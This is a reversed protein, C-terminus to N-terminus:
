MYPPINNQLSHSTTPLDHPIILPHTYTYCHIYNTSRLLFHVDVIRVCHVGATLTDTANQVRPL